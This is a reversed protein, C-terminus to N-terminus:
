GGKYVTSDLINIQPLRGGRINWGHRHQGVLELVAGQESLQARFWVTRELFGGRLSERQRSLVLCSPIM